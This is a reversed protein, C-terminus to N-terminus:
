DNPKTLTLLDYVALGDPYSITEIVKLDAWDKVKDRCGVEAIYLVNQELNPFYCAQRNFRYKGIQYDEQNRALSNSQLQDVSILGELAFYAYLPRLDNTTFILDYLQLAYVAPQITTFYFLGKM